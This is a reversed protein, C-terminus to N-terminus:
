KEGLKESIVFQVISTIQVKGVDCPLTFFHVLYHYSFLSSFKHSTFCFHFHYTLPREGCFHPLFHYFVLNFVYHFMTFCLHFHVNESKYSYFFSQSFTFVSTLSFYQVLNFEIRKVIQECIRELQHVFVLLIQESTNGNCLFNLYRTGTFLVHKILVISM